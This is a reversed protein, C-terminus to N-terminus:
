MNNYLGQLYAVWSELSDTSFDRLAKEYRAYAEPHNEEMWRLSKKPGLYPQQLIDCFIELSDVLLWHHRFLAEADHRETRRCMKTCWDIDVRLEAASKAPRSHLYALVNDRLTKGIDDTDSIIRSDLLQPFDSCDYDAAFYAAPYIFADLQVGAVIATDRQKEADAAIVLVDFDSGANNTGNAYSGYLILSLPQYKQNLYNIIEEM